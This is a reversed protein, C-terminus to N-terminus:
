REIDKKVNKYWDGLVKAVLDKSGLGLALGFGLALMVVFGLFLTNIFYEAIKLESFAALLAFTVLTYSAIKGMLRATRVDVGTLAGKVLSEVLGALLVGITLVIVASLVNPIYGLIATLIASVSTLGLINVSAIFFIFILLWKIVSGLVEEVKQSIEADKLFKEVRSDKFWRNINLARLGRIVLSKIWSAVLLGLIFVVLAGVLNPVFLLFDQIVRSFATGLANQWATFDFQM